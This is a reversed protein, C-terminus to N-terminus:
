STSSAQAKRKLAAIAPLERGALYELFAGGATSICDIGDRLDNHAIAAITDGGGALSYASSEAIAEGVVRTGEGFQDHEFVGLPGNWILTGAEKIISACRRASVPGVDVVMENQPIEGIQRLLARSSASISESTVVDTPLPVDCRSMIKTAHPVLEPECLSSGVDVSASLFTNAMGGGVIITDAVSALNELVELKGSVKAGGIVAVLPRAPDAMAKTLADIEATLLPGACAKSALEIAGATSAHERHATAFADMVFIDGLEAFRRALSEDNSKEGRAFRVNELLVAQGPAVDIGDHSDSILPVAQGLAQSLADAVPQLSFNPDFEGEIPRGLHSLVIVSANRQLCQKITPLAAQIREDNRIRGNDLPVNLDERIVVRKEALDFDDLSKLKM